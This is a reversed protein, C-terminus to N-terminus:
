SMRALQCDHKVHNNFNWKKSFIDGTDMPTDRGLTLGM